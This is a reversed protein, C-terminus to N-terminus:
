QSSTVQLVLKDKSQLLTEPDGPVDITARKVGGPDQVIHVVGDYAAGSANYSRNSIGVVAALFTIVIAIVGPVVAGGPLGVLEAMAFYAASFAPLLVMIIWKLVDYAKNSLQFPFSPTM